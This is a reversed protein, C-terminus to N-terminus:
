NRDGMVNTADSLMIYHQLQERTASDMRGFDFAIMVHKSTSSEDRHQKVAELRIIQGYLKMVEGTVPRLLITAFDYIYGAGTSPVPSRLLIGTESIDIIDGSYTQQGESFGLDVDCRVLPQIRKARRREDMGIATVILNLLEEAKFPKTLVASAGIADAVFQAKAENEATLLFVPAGALRPRLQISRLFDGLSMGPMNWDSVIFLLRGENSQLLRLAHDPNEAEIVDGLRGDQRLISTIYQRMSVSDDIVLAFSKEHM